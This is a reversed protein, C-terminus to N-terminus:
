AQGIEHFRAHPPNRASHCSISEPSCMNSNKPEYTELSDARREVSIPLRNPTNDEQFPAHPFSSGTTCFRPPKSTSVLPQREFLIDALIQNKSSNGPKPQFILRRNIRGHLALM